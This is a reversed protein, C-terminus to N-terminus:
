LRVMSSLLAPTCMQHHTLELGSKDGYVRVFCAFRRFVLLDNRGGLFLIDTYWKSNWANPSFSVISVYLWFFVVLVNTRISVPAGTRKSGRFRYLDCYVRDRRDSDFLCYIAHATIVFFVWKLWNPTPVGAAVALLVRAEEITM